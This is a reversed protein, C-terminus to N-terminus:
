LCVTKLPPFGNFGVSAYTATYAGTGLLWVKDGATLDMPLEYVTHEYLIDASDCTPGALIVPGTEGDDRVTLLPYKIAEDMTEALGSFKGIDLYVWRQTDDEDKLSVLVVEAQIVGADGVLGRGPELVLELDDRGFAQRVADLVTEGYTETSPVEGRYRAPLGGGLNVMRLNLGEGALDRFLAAVQALAPRWQDPDTQQSGVHFSIGYADMGADRAELMLQRAMRPSCGFKRSLPWEAGDCDALVRCYVSAGPAARVLKELEQASDFAFTRVGLEYAAAIESEKKITNGFCINAPAAGTQLCLEVESRSACDFSAGLSILRAIIAPDPNAKVAYSITTGTFAARIREYTQEVLDLDIVLVPWDHPQEAFFNAIKPSIRAVDAAVPMGHSRLVTLAPKRSSRSRSPASQEGPKLVLM